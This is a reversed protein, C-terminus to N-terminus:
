ERREPPSAGARNGGPRPPPPPVPIRGLAPQPRLLDALTTSELFSRYTAVVRSWRDHVPCPNEWGCRPNGFPCATRALVNDFPTMIDLLLIKEPPRNLRFGGGIGRASTLVGRRVLERLVRQLYPRPIDMAAAIDRALVPGDGGRQAIHTVARLAYECTHSWL